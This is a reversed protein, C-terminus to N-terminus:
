TYIYYVVIVNDSEERRKEELFDHNVPQLLDIGSGAGTVVLEHVVITVGQSPNHGDIAAENKIKEAGVKKRIIYNIISISRQQIISNDSPIDHHQLVLNWINM